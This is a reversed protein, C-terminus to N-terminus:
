EFVSKVGDILDQMIGEEQRVVRNTEDNVPEDKACGTLTLSIM